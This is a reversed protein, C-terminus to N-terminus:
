EQHLKKYFQEAIDKPLIQELEELPANELLELSPYTRIILEKRKEGIGKIEDFISRYMNKKRAKRHSTIAYRHVEDQMRTLMFFLERNQSIDYLNNNIDVLGRTRHHDDKVLGVININLNMNKLVDYAVEVQNYGGDVIVLNPMIENEEKLRQYRRKIVEKMSSLDDKKNDSEINYRRYMKKIPEGNIFCVMVGIANTGMLHSNDFLEIRYPTDINLIKGLNELIKLNDDTLRATLFHEDLAEKANEFAIQLIEYLKGKAPNLVKAEDFLDYLSEKIDLNPVIIEKPLKNISYYQVIFSSIFENIEGILEYVYSKKLNISGNRLPLILIGIHNDRIAFSVFDRDVDDNIQTYQKENIAHISDLMKKYEMAKEYELNSSAQNLKETINKIIENSSGKLFLDIQDIIKEYEKKDVKNICPALCQGLHYYLCSSKPITNCKRLPYMQNIINITQHCATADPFPGYYICRKDKTNRSISVYPHEINKHIAIYPYHKDDMLLVNYRPHYKQIMNRELILAEQETKTILISFHDINHVMTATKGNQPRLFYQSVRKKLNKAKGIYIINDDKDRMQYCGPKDPLLDIQKKLIANM